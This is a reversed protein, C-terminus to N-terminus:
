YRGKKIEEKKKVDEFILNRIIILFSLDKIELSPITQTKHSSEKKSIEYINSSSKRKNKTTSLFQLLEVQPFEQMGKM